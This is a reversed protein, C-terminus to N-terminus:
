DTRGSASADTYSVRREPFPVGKGGNGLWGLILERENYRTSTVPRCINDVIRWGLQPDTADGNVTDQPNDGHKAPHDEDGGTGTDTRACVGNELATDGDAQEPSRWVNPLSETIFEDVLDKVVGWIGDKVVGALVSLRIESFKGELHNFFEIRLRNADNRVLFQGFLQHVTEIGTTDRCVTGDEVRLATYGVRGNRTRSTISFNGHRM